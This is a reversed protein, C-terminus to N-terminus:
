ELRRPKILLRWLMLETKFNILIQTAEETAARVQEETMSLARFSEKSRAWKDHETLM